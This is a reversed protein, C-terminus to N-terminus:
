RIRDGCDLCFATQTGPTAKKFAELQDLVVQRYKGEDIWFLNGHRGNPVEIFAKPEKADAFIRQGHEFEVVPDLKGHMVILPTPSILEVDPAWRDSLLVYALPQLLWTVWSQAMKKRAIRQFSSFTGDAIVAQVPIVGKEEIVTRMAVVGGMSHGYVILPGPDKNDHVWHLAARGASVNAYPGPSGESQDYGPYDFILYNYGAEPLWSLAVFHSTLNEANGHFFIFTGKAPKVKSDFWWAHLKENEKDHFYVNEPTLHVRAPNILQGKQPYYLFSSCGTLFLVLGLLAIKM